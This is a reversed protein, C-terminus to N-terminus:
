YFSNRDIVSSSHTLESIYDFIAASQSNGTRTGTYKPTKSYSAWAPAGFGCICTPRKRVSADVNTSGADKPAKPKKV